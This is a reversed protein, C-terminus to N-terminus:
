DATVIRIWLHLLLWALVAAVAIALVGWPWHRQAFEFFQGM